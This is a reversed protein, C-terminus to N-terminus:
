MGGIRSVAEGNGGFEPLDRYREMGGIQQKWLPIWVDRDEILTGGIRWSAVEMTSDMCRSGQDSDQWDHFSDKFDDIMPTAGQLHEKCISRSALFNKKISNPFKLVVSDAEM